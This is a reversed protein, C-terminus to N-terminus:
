PVGVIARVMHLRFSPTTTPMPDLARLVCFVDVCVSCKLVLKADRQRVDSAEAVSPSPDFSAQFHPAVGPAPHHQTRSRPNWRLSRSGITRVDGVRDRYFGQALRPRLLSPSKAESEPHGRSRGVVHGASPLGRTFKSRSM